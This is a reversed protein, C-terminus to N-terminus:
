REFEARTLQRLGRPPTLSDDLSRQAFEHIRRICPAPAEQWEVGFRRLGPGFGDRGWIVRGAIEQMEPPQSFSLRFVLGTGASLSGNTWLCAGTESVDAIVGYCLCRGTARDDVAVTIPTPPVVRVRQRARTYLGAEQWSRRPERTPRGGLGDSPHDYLIM